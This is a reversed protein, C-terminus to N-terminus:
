QILLQPQLSDAASRLANAAARSGAVSEPCARWYPVRAAEEAATQEQDSALRLLIRRVAVATEADLADDFM